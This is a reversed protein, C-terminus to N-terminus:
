MDLPNLIQKINQYCRWFWETDHLGPYWLTHMCSNKDYQYIICLKHSINKYKNFNIAMVVLSSVFATTTLVTNFHLHNGDILELWKSDNFWCYAQMGENLAAVSAKAIYVLFLSFFLCFAEIRCFCQQEYISFDFLKSYTKTLLRKCLCTWVRWMDM